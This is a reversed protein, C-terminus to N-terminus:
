QSPKSAKAEETRKGNDKTPKGMSARAQEERSAWGGVLVEAGLPQNSTNQTPKVGHIVPFRTHFCSWGTNELYPVMGSCVLGM